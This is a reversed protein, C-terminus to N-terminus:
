RETRVLVVSLDDSYFRRWGTQAGLWASLPGDSAILCSRVGYKELLPLSAPSAQLIGIYDALVGSPAYAEFRGDMFVKEKGGSDWILYGGWFADNFMPGPAPHARLYDAARHPQNRDILTQLRATSPFLALTGWAGLALLAANLAPKNKEPEYAPIMKTLLSALVPALVIAFFVMLRQHRLAMYAALLVLAVSEVRQPCRLIVLGLTVALLLFLFWLGFFGHFALPQWEETYTLILPQVTIGMVYRLMAPGYPNVLLAAGCLLFIGAMHRAQRPRWTKGELPGLRFGKLGAMGYVAMAMLGLTFTGHTNVWLVFVVPLVWLNTQEGRRYRELCILTILLFIYGL